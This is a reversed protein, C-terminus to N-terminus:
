KKPHLNCGNLSGCHFYDMNKLLLRIRALQVSGSLCQVLLLAYFIRGKSYWNGIYIEPAIQLYVTKLEIQNWNIWHQKNFWCIEAGGVVVKQKSQCLTSVEKHMPNWQNFDIKVPICAHCKLSSLSIYEFCKSHAIFQFAYVWISASPFRFLPGIYPFVFSHPTWIAFLDWRFASGFLFASDFAGVFDTILLFRICM